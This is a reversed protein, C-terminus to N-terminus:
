IANPYLAMQSIRKDDKEKRRESNRPWHEKQKRTQKKSPKQKYKM